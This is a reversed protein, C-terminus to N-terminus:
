NIFVWTGQRLQYLGANPGVVGAAFHALTGHLPNAIPASLTPLVICPLCEVGRTGARGMTLQATADTNSPQIHPITNRVGIQVGNDDTGNDFQLNGGNEWLRVKGEKLWLGHPIMMDGESTPEPTVNQCGIFTRNFVNGVAAYRVGSGFTFTAIYVNNRCNGVIGEELIATGLSELDVTVFVIRSANHLHVGVCGGTPGTGIVEIQSLLINNIRVGAIDPAKFMIGTTYDSVLTIDIKSFKSDGFNYTKPSTNQFIIGNGTLANGSGGMRINNLYVINVADINIGWSTPGGGSVFLDRLHQEGRIVQIGDSTAGVPMKLHLSEVSSAMGSMTIGTQPGTVNIVSSRRSAGKLRVNDGVTLTASRCTFTGPGLQVTGGGALAAVALGKAITGDLLPNDHDLRTDTIPIVNYLEDFNSQTKIFAERLTDGDGQNGPTAGVNIIKKTM